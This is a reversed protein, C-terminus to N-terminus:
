GIAQGLLQCDEQSIDLEGLLQLRAIRVLPSLRTEWESLGSSYNPNM